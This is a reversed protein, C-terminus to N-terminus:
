IICVPRRLTGEAVSCTMREREVEIEKGVTEGKNGQEREVERDKM